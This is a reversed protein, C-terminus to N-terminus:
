QLVLGLGPIRNSRPRATDFLIGYNAVKGNATISKGIESAGVVVMSQQM